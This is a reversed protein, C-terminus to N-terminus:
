FQIDEVERNRCEEIFSQELHGENILKRLMLSVKRTDDRARMKEGLQRCKTTMREDSLVEDMVKFLEEKSCSHANLRKGLGLDAIRQANDSQDGFVPLVIMPTGFYLCETVSNNGGHIIALNAKSVLLTQPVYDDGIMNSSDLEFKHGGVGKSIVYLRKADERFFNIFRKMLNVDGSAITGLSFYVMESKGRMGEDLRKMWLAAETPNIKTTPKRFLSDCRFWRPNYELIDDDQDYDIEKPFMYLNLYPSDHAQQGPELPGCGHEDLFPQIPRDSKNLAQIIREIADRWRKTMANWEDPNEERLKLRKEKTLLEFGSLPPPKLKDPLRSRAIALPNASYLRVWPTQELKVICPPIYYADIIILDPNIDEIAAKYNDHNDILESVMNSEMIDLTQIFSELPELAFYKRYRSIIQPWKLVGSFDRKTKGLKAMEAEDVPKSPDEDDDDIEYDRYVNKEKLVVLEHGHEQVKSGFTEGLVLFVTRYDHDDKLRDAIALSSNIHGPSNLPFFLVTKRDAM